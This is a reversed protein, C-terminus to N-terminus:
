STTGKRREAKTTVVQDLLRDLSNSVAEAGYTAQAAKAALREYHHDEVVRKLTAAVTEPSNDPMYTVGAELEPELSGMPTTICHAGAALYEIIKFAFVNGPILGVDHPNIGIKAEGLLRANQQRNLLGHFVISKSDAAMTELRPTLEGRGAIHLEWGPLDLMKWATILPELGKSRYHTGSFVVWNNRAMLSRTGASIVDDDVVGRLLVSPLSPPFRSLLYPSVGIVGSVSTLIDRASDLYWRARFGREPEGWVDVFADDEYELVVPVGLRRIAYRACAVQPPKLNYIIVLDYPAARHQRKFLSLTRMSSWAGNVFRIPIVSAYRIPVDSRFPEPEAFAPYFTVRHDVVEGQSLVDVRHNAQRLSEAILEIKVNGALALNRVIPRRRLLEPGQYPAVYAIRM